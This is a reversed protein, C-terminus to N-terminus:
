RREMKSMALVSELRHGTRHRLLIYILMSLNRWQRASLILPNQLILM